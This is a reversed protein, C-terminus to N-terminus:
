TRGSASWCRWRRGASPAAMTAAGSHRLIQELVDLTDARTTWWWCRARRVPRALDARPAAGRASPRRAPAARGAAPEALPLRVTFTTGAHAGPATSPSPAATCSSWSARSRCAWAWAATRRTISADQQRFRDFVYPLFDPAIGIGSDGVRIM